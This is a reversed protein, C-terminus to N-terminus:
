LKQRGNCLPRYHAILDSEKKQRSKIDGDLHICLCDGGKEEFSKAKHHNDFRNSLDGTEGVYLVFHEDDQVRTIVYVAGVSDLKADLASVEFEYNHGSEGTLTTTKSIFERFTKIALQSKPM